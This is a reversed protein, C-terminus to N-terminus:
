CSSHWYPPDFTLPHIICCRICSTIDINGCYIAPFFFHKRTQVSLQRFPIRPALTVSDHRIRWCLPSQNWCKQRRTEESVFTYVESRRKSAWRSAVKAVLESVTCQSLPVKTCKWLSVIPIIKLLHLTWYPDNSLGIWPQSFKFLM